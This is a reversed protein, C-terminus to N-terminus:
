ISKRINIYERGGVTLGKMNAIRNNHVRLFDSIRRQRLKELVRVGDFIIFEEGVLSSNFLKVIISSSDNLGGGEDFFM